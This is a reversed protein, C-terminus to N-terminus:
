LNVNPKHGKTERVLGGAKNLVFLAFVVMTTTHQTTTLGNV